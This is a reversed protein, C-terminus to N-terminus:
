NLSAIKGGDVVYTSGNIMSAADSVLFAIVEAIESAEASRGLPNPPEQVAKSIVKKIFAQGEDTRLIETITGGPNVSNIRVGKPGLDASLSRMMNDMAAKAITYALFDARGRLGLTSSVMVINGKSASLSPLAKKCLEFPALVHVELMTRVAASGIEELNGIKAWGANNILIDIQGFKAVTGSVLQQRVSEHEINGIVSFPKHGSTNEIEAVLEDLRNQRRGHITLKAGRSALLLATAKGIGATSGTVIAVKGMLRLKAYPDM